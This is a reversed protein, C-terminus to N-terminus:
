VPPRVDAAALPRDLGTVGLELRAIGDLPVASSAGLGDSRGAQTASWTAVVERAGTDDVLVLEYTGGAGADAPYSCSWDLRTGWAVPTLVLEARVDTGDVPLLEVTTAPTVPAGPAREAPSAVPDPEAGPWGALVAGTAGGAVVLAVAAAALLGRRRARRHRSRAALDSLPVVDADRGPQGGAGGDSAGRTAGDAGGDEGRGRPAAPRADPDALATAHEPTLMGLIGPMGALAAVSERCAACTALHREFDRREQPGLAGLVYAADWDHYPDPPPATTM